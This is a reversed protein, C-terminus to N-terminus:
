LFFILRPISAIRVQVDIFQNVGAAFLLALLLAVERLLRQKLAERARAAEKATLDRFYADVEACTRLARGARREIHALIEEVSERHAEPKRKGAEELWRAVEPDYGDDEDGMASM